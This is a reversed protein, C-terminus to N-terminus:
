VTVQGVPYWYQTGYENNEAHSHPGPRLAVFLVVVDVLLLLM